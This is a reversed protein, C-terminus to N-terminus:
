PNCTGKETEDVVAKGEKGLYKCLGTLSTWVTSNMHVHHKDGIYEQYVRNALVRKTGHRTFNMTKLVNSAEQEFEDFRHSLTDIFGRM